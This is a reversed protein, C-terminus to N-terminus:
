CGAPFSEAREPMVSSATFSMFARSGGTLLGCRAHDKLLTKKQCAREKM